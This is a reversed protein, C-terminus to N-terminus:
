SAPPMSRPHCSLIQEILSSGSRPTGVIFVPLDSPLDSQKVARPLTALRETSFFAIIRDAKAAYADPDYETPRLANGAAFHDFAQDYHGLDDLLDGLTFHLTRQSTITSIGSDLIDELLSVAEEHKSAHRSIKGYLAIMGPPLSGTNAFPLVIKAAEDHRGQRDLVGAKGALATTHDPQSQLIEEYLQLADELNELEVMMNALNERAPAYEPKAALVKRIEAVADELQDQEFLAYGLGNHANAYDPRLALAQCFSVTAKQFSGLACQTLGLGCHAEAYDPKLRLAEHFCQEAEQHAERAQLATGLNKHAVPNAPNIRIAHRNCLEAGEADGRYLLLGGLNLWARRYEPRIEVAKRYCKIAGDFDGTRQYMLGLNHHYEPNTGSIAVAKAFLDKADRSHGAQAALAGLLNLAEANNPNRQLVRRYLREAERFRGAEHHHFGASLEPDHSATLDETVPQGASTENEPDSPVSVDKMQKYAAVARRRRDWTTSKKRQRAPLAEAHDPWFYWCRFKMALAGIISM